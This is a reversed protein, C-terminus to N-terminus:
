RIKVGMKDQILRSVEEPLKWIHLCNNHLNVYESQKPHFQVCEDEKGFFMNKIFCMESWIPCRHLLSVSVHEFGNDVSAIVHLKKNKYPITFSNLGLYNHTRYKEPFIM